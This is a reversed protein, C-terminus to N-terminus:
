FHATFSSTTAKHNSEKLPVEFIYMGISVLAYMYMSGLTSTQIILYVLITFATSLTYKMTM